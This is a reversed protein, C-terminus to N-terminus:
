DESLDETTIVQFVRQASRKALKALTADVASGPDRSAEEGSEQFRKFVDGTSGYSLRTVMEGRAWFWTLDKPRLNQAEGHTEVLIDSTKGEDGVVAKLGYATLEDVFLAGVSSPNEGSAVVRVTIAKVAKRAQVLVEKTDPGPRGKGEPSLIRYMKNFEKRSISLKVMNLAYKLRSFKGETKALLESDSTFERDLEDLKGELKKITPARELTALAYVIGDSDKWYKAIEAGEIMQFTFSKVEDSVDKETSSAKGMSTERMYSKTEAAIKVGFYKSVEARAKDGAMEENHASGVGTVFSSSPFESSPDSLWRPRPDAASAQVSPAAPAQASPVSREQSSSAQSSQPPAALALSPFPLQACASLLPMALFPVLLSSKM